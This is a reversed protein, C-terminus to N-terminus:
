SISVQDLRAAAFDHRLMFDHEAIARIVTQDRSFTSDLSSGNFYSAEQSSDIQLRLTDGIVCNRGSVFYVESENSGGGLNDPVANTSLLPYGLFSGGKVEDMFIPRGDGDVIQMLGYKTRESMLWFTDAPSIRINARPLLAMLGIYDSLAVTSTGPSASENVTHSSDMWNAIGTPSNGSGDGRIFALDEREAMALVLDDRVFADAAVSATRILDNSVPVLARLKHATMREQGTSPQSATINANEGGYSATAAGTHRPMELNGNPMPVERVGPAGRIVTANRRLEIMEAIFGPAQLESGSGAVSSSLAKEYAEVEQALAKSGWRHLIEHVPVAEDRSAAKARAYRALRLGKEGMEHSLVSVNERTAREVYEKRSADTGIEFDPVHKNDVGKELAELREGQKELRGVVDKYNDAMEHLGFEKFLDSLMEKTNASM